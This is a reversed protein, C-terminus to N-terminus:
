WGEALFLASRLALTMAATGIVIAVIAVVRVRRAGKETRGLELREPNLIDRSGIALFAAGSVAGLAALAAQNGLYERLLVIIVNVAVVPLLERLSPGLKAPQFGGGPEYGEFGIEQRSM